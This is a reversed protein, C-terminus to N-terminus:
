CGWPYGLSTGVRVIARLDRPDERRDCTGLGGRGKRCAVEGGRTAYHRKLAAQGMEASHAAIDLTDGRARSYSLNVPLGVKAIHTAIEPYRGLFIGNGGQPLPIETSSDREIAVWSHLNQGSLAREQIDYEHIQM